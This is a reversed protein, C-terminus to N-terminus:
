AVGCPDYMAAYAARAADKREQERTELQTMHYCPKTQYPHEEKCTCGTAVGNVITTTYTSQGKSSRVLYVVHANRKIFYRAIINVVKAKKAAKIM